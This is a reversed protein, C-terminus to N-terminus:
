NRRAAALDKGGLVFRFLKAENSRRVQYAISNAITAPDHVGFIQASLISWRVRRNLGDKPPVTIGLNQLERKVAQFMLAPDEDLSPSSSTKM